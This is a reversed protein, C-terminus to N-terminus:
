KREKRKRSYNVKTVIKIKCSSLIAFSMTILPARSCLKFFMSMVSGLSLNMTKVPTEPEPLDDSANSVM